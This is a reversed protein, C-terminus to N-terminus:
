PTGIIRDGGTEAPGVPRKSGGNLGPAGTIAGSGDREISASITRIPSIVGSSTAAVIRSSDSVPRGKVSNATSRPCTEASCIALIALGTRGGTCRAGLSVWGAAGSCRIGIKASETSGGRGAAM